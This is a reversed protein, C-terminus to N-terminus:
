RAPANSTLEPNVWVVGVPEAHHYAIVSLDLMGMEGMLSILLSFEAETFPAAGWHDHFSANWTSVFDQVRREEPVDRLPVIEFGATRAGSLAREWREVLE